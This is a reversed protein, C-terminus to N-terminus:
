LEKYLHLIKSANDILRERVEKPEVVEVEDGFSLLTGIWLQENEVVKLKMLAAGDPLDEVVEAKLYERVRSRIAATCKLTIDIYKRSDNSEMRKLIHEPADHEVTAPKDSIKVDSMRVLKLLCYDKKKLSYALLYWAYWRYMVAVPEVTHKRTENNNNTYTIDVIHKTTIATQLTQLTTQEGERLASFDLILSQDEQKHLHAIKELTNAVNADNTASALGKLATLIYSYDNSTALQKDMRYQESIEYGGNVGPYSIIPIGSICLSDIDRQITRMSVEFFKSLEKASTKGHNLLYVTIAYLREVKM